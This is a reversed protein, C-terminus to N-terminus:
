SPLTGYSCYTYNGSQYMGTRRAAALYIKMIPNFNRNKHEDHSRPSGITMHALEHCVVYVIANIDATLCIYLGARGDDLTYTESNNHYIDLNNFIDRVRQPSIFYKMKSYQALLDNRIIHELIINVRRRVEDVKEGFRWHFVLDGVLDILIYIVVFIVILKVITIIEM